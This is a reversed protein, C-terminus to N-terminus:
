DKLKHIYREFKMRAMSESKYNMMFMIQLWTANDLIRHEVIQRIDSFPITSIFEEIKMQEELLKNERNKLIDRLEKLKSTKKWDFSSITINHEIYPFETSSGRVQDTIVDGKKDLADIKNRLKEIETKLEGYQFLIDKTM